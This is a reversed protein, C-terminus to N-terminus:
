KAHHIVEGTEPLAEPEPENHFTAPLSARVVEDGKHQYQVPGITVIAVNDLTWVESGDQRKVVHLRGQLDVLGPPEGELANAVARKLIAEKQAVLQASIQEVNM